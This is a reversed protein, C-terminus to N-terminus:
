EKKALVIKQKENTMVQSIFSRLDSYQSAPIEYTTIAFHYICKITSDSVAYDSSYNGFSKELLINKPLSESVYGPPVHLEITDTESSPYAFRVPFKRNPQAEYPHTWCKSICPTIFIRNPTFQAYFLFQMKLTLRAELSDQVKDDFSYNKLDFNPLGLDDRIFSLREDNSLKTLRESLEFADNGRAFDQYEANVSKTGTDIQLSALISQSNYMADSSPTKVLFGGQPTILLAHRRDTFSNVLQFPHDQNTCELWLTDQRIPVALIVHNFQTSPIDTNIDCTVDDARVLAPYSAVGAVALLSQLYNTLAKCDGFGNQCVYSAPLTQFGGVGLQVGFYRTNAKLFNYLTRIKEEISQGQTMAVVRAKMADPLINRGSWLQYTWMGFDKWNDANCPIGMVFQEPAIFLNPIEEQWYAGYGEHEIAPFNNVEWERQDPNTKNGKDINESFFNYRYGVPTTVTYTAHLVSEHEDEAPIWYFGTFDSYDIDYKMKVLYPKEPFVQNCSIVRHDDVEENQSAAVDQIDSGGAIYKANGTKNYIVYSLSSVKMYKEYPVELNGMSQGDGNMVLVSREIHEHAETISKITVVDEEDVLVANANRELSDPVAPFFSNEQAFAIHSFTIAIIATLLGGLLFHIRM